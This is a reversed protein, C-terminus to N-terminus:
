KYKGILQISVVESGVRDDAQTMGRHHERPTEVTFLPPNWVGSPEKGSDAQQM